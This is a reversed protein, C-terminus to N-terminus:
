PSAWWCSSYLFRTFNNPVFSSTMDIDHFHSYPGYIVQTSSLQVVFRDYMLDELREFDISDLTKKHNNEVVAM